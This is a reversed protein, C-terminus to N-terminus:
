KLMDDYISRVKNNRLPDGIIVIKNSKDLLFSSVMSNYDELENVQSYVGLSDHVLVLKSLDLGNIGAELDSISKPQIICIFEISDNHLQNMYSEAALLYNILCPTCFSSDLNAVIKYSNDSQVMMRKPHGLYNMDWSLDITRGYLDRIMREGSDYCGSFFLILLVTVIWGHMKM